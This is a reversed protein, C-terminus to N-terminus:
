DFVIRVDDGTTLSAARHALTLSWAAIPEVGANSLSRIQSAASEFFFRNGATAGVSYRVALVQGTEQLSYPNFGAAGSLDTAEITMESTPDYRGGTYGRFGDASNADPREGLTRGLNFSCSRLVLPNAATGTFAGISLTTDLAKAPAVSTPPYEILPVPSDVPLDAVGRGTGSWVPASPGDISYGLSDMLVGRVVYLQGADYVNATLSEQESGTRPSYVWRAPITIPTNNAITSDVSRDLTLKAAGSTPDTSSVIYYPPTTQGPVTFRRGELQAKTTSGLGDVDLESASAAAAASVGTIAAEFTATLGAARLMPDIDPRADSTYPTNNVFVSEFAFSGRRGASGSSVSSGGTGPAPGREGDTVYDVTATPRANVLVGDTLAPKADVGYESEIKATLGFQVTSKPM